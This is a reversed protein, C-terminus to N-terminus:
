MSGKEGSRLADGVEEGLKRIDEGRIPERGRFRAVLDTMMKQSVRTRRHKGLRSAQIRLLQGGVLSFEWGYLFCPDNSM